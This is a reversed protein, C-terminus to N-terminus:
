HLLDDLGLKEFQSALGTNFGPDIGIFRHGDWAQLSRIESVFHESDACKVLSVDGEVYGLIEFTFPNAWTGFYSADQSTDVQAWGKNTPCVEFDYYYRDGPFFCRTVRNERSNVLGEKERLQDLM